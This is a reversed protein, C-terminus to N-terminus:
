LNPVIWPHISTIFIVDANAQRSGPTSITENVMVKYTTLVGTPTSTSGPYDTILNGGVTMRTREPESKPPRYDCVFRAYTVIRDTPVEDKRIFFITDTGQVHGNGQTLQGFENRIQEM